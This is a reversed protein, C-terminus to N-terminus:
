HTKKEQKKFGIMPNYKQGTSMHFGTQLRSGQGEMTDLVSIPSLEAARTAPDPASAFAWAMAALGPRGGTGECVYGLCRRSVEQVDLNQM